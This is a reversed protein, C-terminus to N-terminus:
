GGYPFDYNGRHSSTYPINLSTDTRTPENMGTYLVLGVIAVAAIGVPSVLAPLVRQWTMWSRALGGPASGTAVQIKLAHETAVIFHFGSIASAMTADRVKVAFPADSRITDQAHYLSYGPIVHLLSDMM